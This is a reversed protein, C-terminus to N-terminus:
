ATIKSQSQQCIEIGRLLAYDVAAVRIQQRDGRFLQKESYIQGTVCFGFWVTGVPKQASGGEPGAIGSVAISLQAGAKAAAGQAMEQVTQASVAGYTELTTLLVGLLQQKAENAYTIFGSKFWSSSGSISTIAYGIGGGTCSEACTVQWGNQQLNQGLLQALQITKNTM